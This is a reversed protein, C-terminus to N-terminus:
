REDPEGLHEMEPPLILNWRAALTGGRRQRVLYQPARPRHGELKQLFSEPVRFQDQQVDLLWGAAAWLSAVSYCRLVRELLDLDLVPFGSVPELFEAVGGMLDLRRFGEVLTREPGTVRLLQGRYEVKQTGVLVDGCKRLPAPHSLFLVNGGDTTLPPRRQACFLTCQSWESHAVGQLELASHYSFIADPRVTAAVFFMDPRFQEPSQGRPVTAYVERAVRKLRGARVHYKLRELTGSRGGAPNLVHAAKGLSFVPNRAFFDNTSIQRETSM